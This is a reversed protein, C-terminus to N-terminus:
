SLAEKLAVANQRMLSVYTEGREFEDKTINHCSHMLLQKAGTAESIANAIKRNSLETYFIVPIQEEQVKDILFKMTAADPETEGACGPFAAFYTLNYCDAFYRFPFRDAFIITNRTGSATIEAFTKDLSALESVYANLNEQYVAANTSDTSILKETLKECIKIANEPATWVHEDYAYFKSHDADKHHNHAEHSDTQQMGESLEEPVADVCDMMALAKGEDLESSAIMRKAWEDSAGGGWIFLDAQMLKMVDQPTPEFTHSEQGPALLMTIDALDGALQRAFDYPPFGTVVIQLKESEPASVAGCSCLVVSLIGLLVCILSRYFRSM